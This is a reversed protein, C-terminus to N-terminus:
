LGGIVAAAEGAEGNNAFLLAVKRQYKGQTLDNRAQVVLATRWESKQFCKDDKIIAPGGDVALHVTRCSRLPLDFVIRRSDPVLKAVTATAEL